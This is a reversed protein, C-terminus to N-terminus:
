LGLNPQIVLGSAVTRGKFEDGDEGGFGFDRHEQGARLATKQLEVDLRLFHPEQNMRLSPCAGSDVVQVLEVSEPSALRDLNRRGGRGSGHKRGSCSSVHGMVEDLQM